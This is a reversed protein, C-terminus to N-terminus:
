FLKTIRGDQEDKKKGQLRSEVNEQALLENEAIRYYIKFRLILYFALVVMSLYVNLKGLFKVFFMHERVVQGDEIKYSFSVFITITFNVFALLLVPKTHDSEFMAFKMFTPWLPSYDRYLKRNEEMEIMFQPIADIM